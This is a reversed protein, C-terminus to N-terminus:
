QGEIPAGFTLDITYKSDGFSEEGNTRYHGTLRDGKVEFAAKKLELMVGFRGGQRAAHGLEAIWVDGTPELVLFVFSGREAPDAAQWLRVDGTAPKASMLIAYGQKKTREDLVTRVVRVHTLKADTGGLVFTGTVSPNQAFFLSTMSAWTVLVFALRVVFQNHM